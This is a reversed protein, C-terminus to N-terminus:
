NRRLSVHEAYNRSRMTLPLLRPPNPRKKQEREEREGFCSFACKVGNRAKGGQLRRPAWGRRDVAPRGGRPGSTADCHPRHRQRGPSRRCSPPGFTWLHPLAPATKEERWKTRLAGSRLPERKLGGNAARKACEPVGKLASATCRSLGPCPGREKIGEREPAGGPSSGRATRDKM